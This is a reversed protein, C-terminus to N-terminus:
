FCQGFQDGKKDHLEMKNLYKIDTQQEVNEQEYM